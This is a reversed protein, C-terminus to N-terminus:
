SIRKDSVWVTVTPTVVMETKGGPFRCVIGERQIQGTYPGPFEWTCNLPVYGNWTGNFIVPTDLNKDDCYWSHKLEMYGTSIDFKVEGGLPNYFGGSGPGSTYGRSPDFDPMGPTLFPGNEERSTGLYKIVGDDDGETRPRGAFVSSNLNFVFMTNMQPDLHNIWGFWDTLAFFDIWSSAQQLTWQVPGRGLSAVTCSWVGTPDPETLDGAPLRVTDISQMSLSLQNYITWDRYMSYGDRDGLTCWKAAYTYDCSDGRIFIAPPCAVAYVTNSGSGCILGMNVAGGGTKSIQATTSVKYTSAGNESNCYWTSNVRLQGAKASFQIWTEPTRQLSRQHPDQARGRFCPWWRDTEGDLAGDNFSCSTETNTALNKIVVVLTRNYPAPWGPSTGTGFHTTQEVTTAQWLFRALALPSTGTSQNPETSKRLCGPESIGPPTQLRAPALYAPSSLMGEIKFPTDLTCIRSSCYFPLGVQNNNDGWRTRATFDTRCM